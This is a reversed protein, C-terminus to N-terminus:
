PPARSARQPRPSRGRLLRCKASLGWGCRCCPSDARHPTGPRPPRRRPPFAPRPARSPLYPVPIECTRTLPVLATSDPARKPVPSPVIIPLLMCQRRLYLYVYAPLLRDPLFPSDILYVTIASFPGAGAPGYECATTAPSKTNM